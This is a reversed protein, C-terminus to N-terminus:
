ARGMLKGAKMKLKDLTSLSELHELMKERIKEIAKLPRIMVKFETILGEENWTIMDIGDIVIGDVVSNFELVAENKDQIEKVYQFSEADSFM